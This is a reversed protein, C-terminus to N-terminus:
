YAAATPLKPIILTYITSHTAESDSDECLLFSLETETQKYLTLGEFKHQHSIILTEEISFDHRNIKGFLSGLIDGDEYTSSTNEASALFFILGDVVIADTFSFESGNIEPLKLPIFKPNLGAINQSIFIGNQNAAGNGRQFFLWDDDFKATGEINFESTSIGSSFRLAEYTKTLDKATIAKSELNYIRLTNRNETSGSGFAYLNRGLIMLSEFDPKFSKPINETANEVLPIKDLQRSEMDYVYLFQSNDSILYLLGYDYAIGSAASIGPIEFAPRLTFQPM